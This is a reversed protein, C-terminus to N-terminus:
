LPAQHHYKPGIRYQLVFATIGLSNLWEAVPQGEHNALHTYGGGPCVIVASGNAKVKPIFPTLTPTDDPESGLAGPAGDSWLKIAEPANAQAQAQVQSQFLSRFGLVLMTASAIILLTKM